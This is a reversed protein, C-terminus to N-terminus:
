VKPNDPDPCPGTIVALVTRSNAVGERMAAESKDGMKVDFWVAFGARELANTVESALLKAEGNRQTHSVFFDWQGTAGPDNRMEHPQSPRAVPRALPETRQEVGEVQPPPPAVDDNCGNGDSRTDRPLPPPEKGERRNRPRPTPVPITPPIPPQPPLHPALRGMLVVAVAAGAVAAGVAAALPLRGGDAM